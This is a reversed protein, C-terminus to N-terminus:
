ENLERALDQIGNWLKILSSADYARPNRGPRSFSAVKLTGSPELKVIRILDRLDKESCGIMKAAFEVPWNNGDLPVAPKGKWGKCNCTIGDDDELNM